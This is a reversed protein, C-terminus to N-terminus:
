GKIWGKKQLKALKKIEHPIADGPENDAISDEQQQGNGAERNYHSVMAPPNM